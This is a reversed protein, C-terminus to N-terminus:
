QLHIDYLCVIGHGYQLQKVTIVIFMSRYFIYDYIQLVIRIISEVNVDAHSIM